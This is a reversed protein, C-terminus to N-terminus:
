PTAEVQHFHLDATSLLQYPNQFFLAYCQDTGKAPATGPSNDQHQEQIKLLRATFTRQARLGPEPNRVRMIKFLCVPLNVKGHVQVYIPPVGPVAHCRISARRGSPFSAPNPPTTKFATKRNGLRLCAIALLDFLERHAYDTQHGPNV